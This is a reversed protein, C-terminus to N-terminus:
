GACYLKLQVKTFIKLVKGIKDGFEANQFAVFDYLFINFDNHTTMLSPFERHWREAHYLERSIPCM